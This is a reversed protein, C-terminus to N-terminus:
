IARSFTTSRARTGHAGTRTHEARNLRLNCFMFADYVHVIFIIHIAFSLVAFLCAKPQAGSDM